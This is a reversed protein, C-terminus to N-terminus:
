SVSGKKEKNELDSKMTSELFILKNQTEKNTIRLVLSRAICLKSFIQNSAPSLELETKWCSCEM